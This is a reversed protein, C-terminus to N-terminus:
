GTEWESRRAASAITSVVHESAAPRSGALREREHQGDEYPQRFSPGAISAAVVWPASGRRRGTLQGALDQLNYIREGGQHTELRDHHESAHGRARLHTRQTTPTSM